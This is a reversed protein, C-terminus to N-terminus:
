IPQILIVLGNRIKFSNKRQNRIIRFRLGKPGVRGFQQLLAPLPGAWNIQFQILFRFHLRQLLVDMIIKSLYVSHHMLNCRRIDMHINIHHLRRRLAIIIRQNGAAHASVAHLHRLFQLLILQLSSFHHNTQRRIPLQFTPVFGIIPRDAPQFNQRPQRNHFIGPQAPSM